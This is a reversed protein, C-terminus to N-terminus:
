ADPDVHLVVSNPVVLATRENALLRGAVMRAEDAPYFGLWWHGQEDQGMVADQQRGTRGFTYAREFSYPGYGLGTVATVSEGVREAEFYPVVADTPRVGHFGAWQAFESRVEDDWEGEAPEEAKAPATARQAAFHLRGAATIADRLTGHYSAAVPTNEDRYVIWEATRPQYVDKRIVVESRQAAVIIGYQTRFGSHNFAGSLNVPVATIGVPSDTPRPRIQMTVSRSM